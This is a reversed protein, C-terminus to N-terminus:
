QAEQSALTNAMHAPILMVDAMGAGFGSAAGRAGSPQQPQERVVGSSAEGQGQGGVGTRRGATGSAEAADGHEHVDTAPGFDTSTSSTRGPSGRLAHAHRTLTGVPAPRRSRKARADRAAVSGRGWPPVDEQVRPRTTIAPRVVGNSGGPRSFGRVPAVERHGRQPARASPRMPGRVGASSAFNASRPAAARLRGMRRAHAGGSGTPRQRQPQRPQPAQSTGTGTGAAPRVEGDGKPNSNVDGAAAASEVGDEDEDGEVVVEQTSVVVGAAAVDAAMLELSTGGEVAFSSGDRRLQSASGSHAWGVVATASATGDGGGLGGEGESGRRGKGRATAPASEVEPEGHAHSLLATLKGDDECGDPLPQPLGRGPGTGDGQAGARSPVRFPDSMLRTGPKRPALVPVPQVGGGHQSAHAGGGRGRFLQMLAQSRPALGGAAAQQQQPAQGAATGRVVGVGAGATAGTGLNRGLPASASAPARAAASRARGKAVEALLPPAVGGAGSLQAAVQAPLHFQPMCRGLPPKSGRFLVPHHGPAAAASLRSDPRLGSRVSVTTPSVSTVNRGGASSRRTRVRMGLSQLQFEWPGDPPTVMAGRAGWGLAGMAHAPGHRGQPAAGHGAEIFAPPQPAMPVHAAPAGATQAWMAADRPPLHLGGGEMTPTTAARYEAVIDDAAASLVMGSRSGATTPTVNVGMVALTSDVRVVGAPDRQPKGSAPPTAAGDTDPLPTPITATPPHYFLGGPAFLNHVSQGGSSPGAAVRAAGGELASRPVTSASGDWVSGGLGGDEGGYSDTAGRAGGVGGAGRADVDGFQRHRERAAASPAWVGGADAAIPRGRSRRAAPRHVAEGFAISSGGSDLGSPIWPDRAHSSSSARYGVMGPISPRQLTAGGGGVSGDSGSSVGGDDGSGGDFGEEGVAPLKITARRSVPVPVPVAAGASSEGAALQEGWASGGEAGTVRRMARAVRRAERREARAAGEARERRVAQMQQHRMWADAAESDPGREARARALRARALERRRAARERRQRRARLVAPTAAGQWRLAERTPAASEAADGAAAVADGYSADLSPAAATRPSPHVGKRPSGASGNGSDTARPVVVPERIGHRELLAGYTLAGAVVTDAPTIGHQLQERLVRQQEADARWSAAATPQPIPLSLRALEPTAPPVLPERPTTEQAASASAVSGRRHRRPVLARSGPRRRHRKHLPPRTAPPAPM